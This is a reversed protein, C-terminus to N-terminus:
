QAADYRKQASNFVEAFKTAGNKDANQQWETWQKDSYSKDLIYKANFENALKELATQLEAITANEDDTFNLVPDLPEFKNGSLMKDQAEQEKETYNYYVSRRDPNLYMGELWLGYHDELVKIDVLPVDKLEPYVPMGNEDFNFTEGEVGLTVLSAGSPSTLYDLLKLAAEKNENNAVAIGWNADVKPLTRINGTPGVPNAYRLDYNPVQDKIQNYFLDLRGIWDWTVFAKDTTMKSTWSDPTDTIFEPDLLGENFMLKLTDLMEKHEPQISAFKWTKASEDYYAPYSTGGLGWGYAWDRFIYEKNKSSYPYSDPYAKKLARLADLFEETTTWEKIGLEDFVDKRYLFGHNVDRNMNYIPWSYLKGQEDGYSAVVWPNEEMYLKSFNPLMDAYDNIAVVANQQGIKKLEAPKLGHFIDPLKGSGLTIRLKDQYTAGSHTQLDLTIGTRKEIEKAILKDNAPNESVLMWTITTPKDVLPLKLGGTDGYQSSTDENNSPAPTDTSGNNGKNSTNNSSGTNTNTNGNNNNGSSCAAILTIVLTLILAVSLMKRSM